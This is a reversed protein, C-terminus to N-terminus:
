DSRDTMTLVLRPLTSEHVGSGELEISYWIWSLSQQGEGVELSHSVQATPLCDLDEDVGPEAPLGTLVRLQRYAAQEDATLTRENLAQIDELHLEQLTEEWSGAGKLSLLAAHSTTYQIRSLIIRIDVVKELDCSCAFEHQSVVERSKYKYLIVRCRLQHCLAALADQADAWRLREEIQCLHPTCLSGCLGLSFASPLHLDIKEPTASCSQFTDATPNRELYNRLGPM